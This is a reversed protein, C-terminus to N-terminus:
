IYIQHIKNSKTNSHNNFLKKKIPSSYIYNTLTSYNQLISNNPSNNYFDPPLFMSSKSNKHFIQKHYLMNHRDSNNRYISNKLADIAKGYGRERDYDLPIKGYIDKINADVFYLLLLKIM